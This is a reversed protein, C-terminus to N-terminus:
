SVPNADSKIATYVMSYMPHDHKQESSVQYSLSLIIRIICLNTKRQFYFLMFGHVSAITLLVLATCLSGLMEM